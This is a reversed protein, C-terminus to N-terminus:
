NLNYPERIANKNKIQNWKNIGDYRMLDYSIEILYKANWTLEGDNKTDSGPKM